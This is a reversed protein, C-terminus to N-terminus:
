MAALKRWFIIKLLSIQMFNALTHKKTVSSFIPSQRYMYKGRYEFKLHIMTSYATKIYYNQQKMNNFLHGSNCAGLFSHCEGLLKERYVLYFSCYLKAGHKQCELKTGRNKSSLIKALIKCEFRAAIKKGFAWLFYFFSWLSMIAYNPQLMCRQCVQFAFSVTKFPSLRAKRSTM